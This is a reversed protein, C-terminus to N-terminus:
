SVDALMLVSLAPTCRESPHFGNDVSVLDASSILLMGDPCQFECDQKTHTNTHKLSVSRHM